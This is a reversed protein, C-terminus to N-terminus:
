PKKRGKWAKMVDENFGGMNMTVRITDLSLIFILLWLPPIALVCLSKRIFNNKIADIAM